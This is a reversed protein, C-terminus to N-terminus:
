VHFNYHFKHCFVGLPSPDGVSEKQAAFIGKAIISGHISMQWNLAKNGM